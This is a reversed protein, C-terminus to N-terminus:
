EKPQFYRGENGCRGSDHPAGTPLGSGTPQPIAPSIAPYAREDACRLFTQAGTVPDSTKDRGCGMANHEIKAAHVCNICYRM